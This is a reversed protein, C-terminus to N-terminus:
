RELPVGMSGWRWSREKLSKLGLFDAYVSKSIM